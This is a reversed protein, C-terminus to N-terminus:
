AWAFFNKSRLAFTCVNSNFTSPDITRKLKRQSKFCNTGIVMVLSNQEDRMSTWTLINICTSTRTQVCARYTQEDCLPHDIFFYIPITKCLSCEYPWKRFITLTLARHLSILHRHSSLSLSSCFNSFLSFLTIFTLYTIIRTRVRQFM